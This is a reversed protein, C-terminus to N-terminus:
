THSHTKTPSTRSLITEILQDKKKFADILYEEPSSIDSIAETSLVVIFSGPVRKTFSALISPSEKGAGNEVYVITAHLVQTFSSSALHELCAKFGKTRPLLMHKLVPLNKKKAYENSQAIKSPTARTGEPYIVLTKNTRQRIGECWRRIREADKAWDRKILLYNSLCASWGIVPVWKVSEKSIYRTNTHLLFESIAGTIITDLACIHNSLLIFSTNTTPEKFPILQNNEMACFQFLDKNGIALTYMLLWVFFRNFVNMTREMAYPNTYTIPLALIQFIGLLLLVCGIVLSMGLKLVRASAEDLLSM